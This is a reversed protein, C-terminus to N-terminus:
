RLRLVLKGIASRNELSRLAEAAATLDAVPALAPNLQGSVLYPWLAAWQEQLFGENRAFYAAWGVGVVDINNLLLRNVRVTPIAGGTFGVVLLRGLPALSRLSDTVREGGVPDVVIDVGRGATLEKVAAAFDDAGLVDHAGAAAALERKKSTSAVGIVTAGFARALQVSASGVGGAAGHVLVTEGAKLRGRHCLAFHGTLYNMPLGAAAPFPLGDPLPFVFAPDVAVTDQFGGRMVFAGVRDGAAVAAGAPSTRVVGAIETGPVFPLDPKEQYLGRSQLVDPFTVGAAHVDILVQGPGPVPEPLEALALGDPGALSTVHVARM